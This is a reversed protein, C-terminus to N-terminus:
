RFIEEIKEKRYQFIKKIDKSVQHSTLLDGFAKLPVRYLIRDVMLTGNRLPEFTHTHHWYQYPGKTQTDVFKENPVWDIIKSQWKFPINKLKLRYDILTGEEIQPTSKQLVKFQLWPPTLIELNKEDSFFSFVKEVPHPVWQQSM